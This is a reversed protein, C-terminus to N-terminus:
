AVDGPGVFEPCPFRVDCVCGAFLCPPPGGGSVVVRVVLVGGLVGVVVGVCVLLGLVVVGLLGVPWPVGRYGGLM